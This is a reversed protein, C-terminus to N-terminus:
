PSPGPLRVESFRIQYLDGQSELAGSDALARLRAALIHDGAQYRGGEGFTIMAEGIVRASKMWYDAKACSLLLNDFFTIPASKLELKEDIVRLPANEL